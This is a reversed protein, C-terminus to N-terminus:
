CPYLKYDYHVRYISAPINVDKISRSYKSNADALLTTINPIVVSNFQVLWYAVTLTTIDFETNIIIRTM